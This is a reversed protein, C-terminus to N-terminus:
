DAKFNEVDAVTVPKTPAKRRRLNERLAKALREEKTVSQPKKMPTGQWLQPRLALAPALGLALRKVNDGDSRM